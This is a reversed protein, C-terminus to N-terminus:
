IKTNLKLAQSKFITMFIMKIVMVVRFRDFISFDCFISSCDNEYKSFFVKNNLKEFLQETIKSKIIRYKLKSQFHGMIGFIKIYLLDKTKYLETCFFNNETRKIM